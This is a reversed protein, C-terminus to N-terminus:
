LHWISHLCSLYPHKSKQFASSSSLFLAIYQINELWTIIKERELPSFHVSRVSSFNSINQFISAMPRDQFKGPEPFDGECAILKISQQLHKINVKVASQSLLEYHTLIIRQIKAWSKHAVTETQWHSIRWLECSIQDIHWSNCSFLFLKLNPISIVLRFKEPNSFLGSSVYKLVPYVVVCLSDRRMRWVLQSKALPYIYIYGKAM